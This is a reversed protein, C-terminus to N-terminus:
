LKLPSENMGLYTVSGSWGDWERFSACTPEGQPALEQPSCRWVGVAELGGPLVGEWEQEGCTVDSVPLHLLPPLFASTRDLLLLNLFGPLSAAVARRAAIGAVSAFGCFWFGGLVHSSRGPPKQCPVCFPYGEQPGPPHTPRLHCQYGSPGGLSTGLFPQHSMRSLLYGPSPLSGM